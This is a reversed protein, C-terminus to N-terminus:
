WAGRDMFNELHFYQLSNGNGEGSSRGSSRGWGPISGTNTTDGANCASEKGIHWRKVQAYHYITIFIISFFTAHTSPSFPKRRPKTTFFRGALSPSAPKIGPDPLDRPPSFPLGSWYEQQSFGMSLPAQCAATWPTVFLRVSNLM